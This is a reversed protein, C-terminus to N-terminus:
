LVLMLSHLVGETAIKGVLGMFILELRIAIELFIQLGVVILNYLHLKNYCNSLNKKKIIKEWKVREWGQSGVERTQTGRAEREEGSEKREKMAFDLLGNPTSIVEHSEVAQELRM